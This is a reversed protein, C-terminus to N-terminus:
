TSHVKEGHPASWGAAALLPRGSRPTEPHQILAGRRAPVRRGSKLQREAWPFRVATTAAYIMTRRAPGEEVAM